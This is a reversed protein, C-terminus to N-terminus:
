CRRSQKEARNWAKEGNYASFDEKKKRCNKNGGGANIKGCFVFFGARLHRFFSEEQRQAAKPEKHKEQRLNQLLRHPSM